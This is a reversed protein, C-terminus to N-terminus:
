SWREGRWILNGRRWEALEALHTGDPWITVTAWGGQWDPDVAYGLGAPDTRCMCGAEVVSRVLQDGQDDYTTWSRLSQRHTHGAVVTRNLRLSKGINPPEHRVVLGSALTVEGFRWDEGEVGALEVNLEDLHLLRRVSYLHPEREEGPRLAPSLFAMREARGMLESELRWDHNGRLKVWRTGPSADVREALLRYGTDVCEQASAAWNVRDQHRSITPFDMTDGTFVGADPRVEELWRCLVEHLREDQYPAQDDGCVVVLRPEAPDRDVLEPVPRQRVETAATVVVRKSLLNVKLQHLTVTRAEGGPGGGYALAEWENVTVREVVWDDPELGRARLLAPIDSLDAGAPLTATASLGDGDVAIGATEAGTTAGARTANVGNPMRDIGQRKMANRITGPSLGYARAIGDATKHKELEALLVERTWRRRGPPSTENAV